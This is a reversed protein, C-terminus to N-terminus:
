VNGVQEPQHPTVAPITDISLVLWVPYKPRSHFLSCASPIIQLDVVHLLIIEDQELHKLHIFMIDKGYFFGAAISVYYNDTLVDM